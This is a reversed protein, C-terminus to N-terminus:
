RLFGAIPTSLRGLLEAGSPASCPIMPPPLDEPPTFSFNRDFKPEEVKPPAKPRSVSRAKATGEPPAALEGLNLGSGPDQTSGDSPSATGAKAKLKKPKQAAEMEDAKKKEEALEADKAKALKELAEKEKKDRAAKSAAADGWGDGGAAAALKECHQLYMKKFKLDRDVIPGRMAELSELIEKTEQKGLRVKKLAKVYYKMMIDYWLAKVALHSHSIWLDSGKYAEPGGWEGRLYDVTRDKLRELRFRAFQKGIEKDALMWNYVDTVIMDLIPEGGIRDYLTQSAKSSGTGAARTVPNKSALTEDFRGDAM